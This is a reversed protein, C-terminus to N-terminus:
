CSYEQLDLVDPFFPCPTFSHSSGPVSGLSMVNRFVPDVPQNSQSVDGPAVHLREVTLYGLKTTLDHRSSKQFDSSSLAMM